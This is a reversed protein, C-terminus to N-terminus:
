ARAKLKPLLWAELENYLATRYGGAAKLSQYAERALELAKSKDKGIDWLARAMVFQIAELSGPQIAVTKVLALARELLPIAELPKRALVYSRACEMLVDAVAPHDPGHAKEEIVRARQCYELAKFHRNLGNFDESIHFLATTLPHHDPGATKEGIKLARFHVELAAKFKGQSALAAGLHNLPRAVDPHEPGLTKEDIALGRRYYNIASANDGVAYKLNGINDLQNSVLRHEPGLSKEALALAREAYELASRYNGQRRLVNAINGLASAVGPSEPMVKERIVLARQHLRLAEDLKGLYKLTNGLNTAADAASPHNPGYTNEFIQLAKQAYRVSEEYAGQDRIAVAVNALARAPCANTAALKTNCVELAAKFHEISDAYKGEGLYLAGLASELDKVLEPPNELRETAAAAELALQHAEAFRSERYGVVQVLEILAAAKTEDDRGSEAARAAERLSDEAAQNKGTSSQLTGLLLAAEAELPKYGLKRSSATVLEATKLAESYKGANRLARVEALATRQKELEARVSPSAPPKVRATLSAVDACGQLPPLNQAAEIGKEVIKADAKTFLDTLAKLDSLRHRLCEARLDLTAESQEGRLRTARCADTQMTVWAGAYADLLNQVSRVTDPAYPMGTAFLANSVARKKDGDWVGVLKDEAGKCIQSQRYAAQRYGIIVAAVVLVAGAMALTPTRILRTDRGLHGLLIDMSPHRDKPDPRLGRLLVRRLWTPVRSAMPPQRVRGQTVEFILAEMSEGAFPREGYLAEYLAACFSFQDSRADTPLQMLQEPAMYAPTGMLVDARTLSAALAPSRPAMETPSLADIEAPAKAEPARALGFDLVRVRGDRSILVNTPKFDRHVLGAAHAAALGRGAQIFVSLVDRWPRFIDALWEKLTQGEIFEMTIFVQEDLTGVDFVPIVNPHSLRALAQAERLMRARGEEVKLGTAEPRLLKIAVKRDLEPDYASYVVGMGGHGLEDLVIYRGLSDGRKFGARAESSPLTGELEEQEAIAPVKLFDTSDEHHSLLSEVEQRLSPDDACAQNLFASRQGPECDLAAGFLKKVRQRRESNVDSM